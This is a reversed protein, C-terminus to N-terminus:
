GQAPPVLRWIVCSREAPDLALTHTKGRLAFRGGGLLDEVEIAGDDPLGFEWLPVEYTCDQRNHPDLNVLVLLVNDKAPTMRLYSIIQDNWANLFTINRFDWLAPNQRRIANLKTIHERINGPRDYDWVRIEYKESDLYEEKRYLAAECLEFGNYIGYASSLTAALTARVVFGARGSTQLYIPNIDPTNAFFNPRYYEGMDSHALETMYETLESKTDRWTFYTYSQQFGIKALKRMMKPRTFAEALFIADPYAGNVEAILWEWFPLPKTHPNDVRFIRVGERCWFLVADRLAHWLGPKSQGYFTVNYIDEYKKPPNEAYKMTGDPRYEFWEPHQRIWPHDPSCQIAFDLAIELGHAQSAAVMRRFGELGGLDPHVADHGGTEDGIAYVSGVDGPEATLSNNKGKRNRLGIPHIPPFYLVDFGMGRVYPLMAIVDDFTGHRATDHSMSRPFLEYWASFRAALRDAVVALDRSRSANVREANRGILAEHDHDLILALQEPAGAGARELQVVLDALAEGDVGEAEQAAREAIRAGEITELRVDIGAARKAEIEHHWSAFPDRWAEIRYLFRTNRVLPFAGHWRDNELFRMPASRWVTEDWPRYQIEAAIKDHGDSFIDAWVEVSEGVVRKIPTTGGDLEPWVSEIVVRGEGTPESSPRAGAAAREATLIRFEGPALMLPRGPEFLAPAGNPTRDLFPGFLGGTRALIAAPDLTVSDEGPNALVLLGSSASVVHGGDLRLLAFYPADPASLLQAAGEINATGIEAKLRNIAAIRDSIDIGTEERDGPNTEVVHLKRRYGWEYGVPMLVGSSFFAALAYRLALDRAIGERDEAPLAAARREMDHNEPFAISPALHRTTEALDLAWSKRLDWWAFSNFLYDFGSRATAATEADSCGLTEAAFLCGADRAKAKGILERWVEPPVKYAADCRFGGIGLGQMRALYRDWYALLHSRGAEGHWDFEALDGWVTRKGPDDPDTAYPSELEGWMNRVFAEPAASAMVADKSAHNVVLDAMVRLGAASAAEVFRRIAADGSEDDDGPDRFRPDLKAPDRIAYLSGSFGSEHFPNVYVWDFGMAAIRPLDASWASVPGVLLPFLNYIRPGAKAPKFAAPADAARARTKPPRVPATM